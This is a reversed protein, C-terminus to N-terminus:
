EKAIRTLRGALMWSCTMEVPKGTIPDLSTIHITAMVQEEATTASLLTFSWLPAKQPDPKDITVTIGGTLTCTQMDQATAIPGAVDFETDCFIASDLPSVSLDVLAASVGRGFTKNPAPPQDLPDSDLCQVTSKTMTYDYLWTGVFDDAPSADAGCGALGAGVVALTALWVAPARSGQSGARTMM